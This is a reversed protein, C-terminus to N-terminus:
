KAASEGWLFLRNLPHPSPEPLNQFDPHALIFANTTVDEIGSPEGIFNCALYGRKASALIRQFYIERVPVACESFAYNSIALDYSEPVLEEQTLFRLNPVSFKGLFTKALALPEPLDILTYESPKFVDHIIKCQGGYGGGIEAIRFGDLSGFLKKLDSLVEMYRLTTPCLADPCGVRDSAHFQPLWKWLDPNDRGIIEICQAATALSVHEMIGKLVPNSRFTAFVEPDVAAQACFARYAPFDSISTRM